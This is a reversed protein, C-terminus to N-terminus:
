SGTPYLFLHHYTLREQTSQPLVPVSSRGTLHFSYEFSTLSATLTLNLVEVTSLPASDSDLSGCGRDISLLTGVWSGRRHSSHGQLRSESLVLINRGQREQTRDLYLVVSGDVKLGCQTTM